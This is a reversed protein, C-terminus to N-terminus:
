INEAFDILFKALTTGATLILAAIVLGVFKEQNVAKESASGLITNFGILAGSVVILAVGIVQLIGLIKPIVSGTVRDADHISPQYDSYNISFDSGGTGPPTGGDDTYFQDGGLGGGPAGYCICSNCVIMILMILFVKILLNTIKM